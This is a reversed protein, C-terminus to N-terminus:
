TFKSLFSGFILSLIQYSITIAFDDPFSKVFEPLIEIGTYFKLTVGLLFLFLPILFSFIYFKASPLDMGTLKKSVESILWGIGMLVLVNILM